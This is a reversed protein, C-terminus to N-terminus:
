DDLWSAAAPRQGLSAWAGYAGLAAVLLAMVVAAGFYAVRTDATIPGHLCAIFVWYHVCITLLGFRWVSYTILACVLAFHTLLIWSNGGLLLLHFLYLLVFLIAAAIRESRTWRAILQFLLLAIMGPIIRVALSYFQMPVVQFAGQLYMLYTEAPVSWPARLVSSGFPVLATLVGLCSGVLVDRGVLPDRWRGEFLRTWAVIRRPAHRRLSPELALHFLFLVGAVLAASFLGGRVLLDLIAWPDPPLDALALWGAFTSLALAAALRRAGQLDARGLLLNRRALALSLAIAGGVVLLALLLGLTVAMPAPPAPLREARSWPAVVEFYTLRGAFAAAEIRLEVTSGPRRGRYARREDAYFPPLRLPEVASLSGPELASAALWRSWDTRSPPPVGAAVEAPPVEAPPVRLLRLLRGQSDLVVTAMGARDLPPDQLDVFSGSKLPEPSARYWFQLPDGASAAGAGQPSTLYALFDQDDLFGFAEDAPTASSGDSALLQRAVEALAEPRKLPRARGATTALPALWAVLGLAVMLLVWLGLAQPAALSGEEGAAAVVEPSPTEGAALAAALPDGGPLMAVVQAVSAPRAAPDKDLCGLIVREVQPELDKILAGPAVPASSERARLIEGLTAGDAFARKGTFIEYLVLGLAYIDTREDIKGGRLQEPAMYAPTGAIEGGEFSGALGALGFDTIRARGRGDIMVNAPKLDRHLVGSEHAAALGACIQRAIELAKDGPLRGIRRLLSALEEGDIYEMSLFHQGGSEGVDHVRCVNPHSVRRATRVEGLFRDLAAADRSLAEPLFKLAVPSGIKLDDARYVEGMGGKGLLGLIRYRKEIVLGPVFRQRPLPREVREPRRSLTETPATALTPGDFDCGCAACRTWTDPQPEGCNPCRM